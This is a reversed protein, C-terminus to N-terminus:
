PRRLLVAREALLEQLVPPDANRGPLTRRLIPHHHFISSGQEALFGLEHTGQSPLLAAHCGTTYHFLFFDLLLAQQARFMGQLYREPVLLIKCHGARLAGPCLFRNPPYEILSRNFLLASM